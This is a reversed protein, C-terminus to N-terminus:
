VVAGVGDPRRAELVAQGGVRVYCHLSLAFRRIGTPVSEAPLMTIPEIIRTKFLAYREDMVVRGASVM